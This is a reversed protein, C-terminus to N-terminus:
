EDVTEEVSAPDILTPREASWPRTILSGVVILIVLTTVLTVWKQRREDQEPIVPFDSELWQYGLVSHRMERKSYPEVVQPLSGSRPPTVHGLQQPQLSSNSSFEERAKVFIRAVKRPRMNLAHSLYLPSADFRYRLLMALKYDARMDSLTDALYHADRYRRDTNLLASSRRRGKLGELSRHAENSAISALWSAYAAPPPLAHDNYRSVAIRFTIVTLRLAEEEDKVLFWCVDYVLTAADYNIVLPSDFYMNRWDGATVPPFTGYPEVTTTQSSM